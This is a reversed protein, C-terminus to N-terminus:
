QAKPPLSQYSSTKGVFELPSRLIFGLIAAVKIIAKPNINKAKMVVPFLPKNSLYTLLFYKRYPAKIIATINKKRAIPSKLNIPKKLVTVLVFNPTFSVSINEGRHRNIAKSLEKM